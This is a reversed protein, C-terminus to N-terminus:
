SRAPETLRDTGAAPAHSVSTLRPAHAPLWGAWAPYRRLFHFVFFSRVLRWLSSEQLDAAEIRKCCHAM